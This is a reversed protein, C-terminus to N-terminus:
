YIFRNILPTSESISLYGMKTSPRIFSKATLYYVKTSLCPLGVNKSLLYLPYSALNYRYLNYKISECVLLHISVNALTYICKCIPFPFLIYITTEHKKCNRTTVTVTAGHTLGAAWAYPAGDAGAARETRIWWADLRAAGVAVAVGLVVGRSGASCSSLWTGEM